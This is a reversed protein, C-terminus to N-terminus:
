LVLLNTLARFAILVSYSKGINEDSKDDAIKAQNSVISPKTPSVSSESGAKSPGQAKTPSDSM